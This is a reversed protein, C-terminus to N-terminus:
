VSSTLANSAAPFMPRFSSTTDTFRDFRTSAEIGARHVSV